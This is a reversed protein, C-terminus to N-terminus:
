ICTKDIIKGRIQDVNLARAGGYKKVVGLGKSPGRHDGDYEMGKPGDLWPAKPCTHDWYRDGSGSHVWIRM